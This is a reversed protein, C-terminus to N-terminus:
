LKNFELKSRDLSFPWIELVTLGNLSCKVACPGNHHLKCRNCFPLNGAYAKGENPTAAYARVVEQRRNQQHHHNNNRNINNSQHDEWKKKNGDSGRAAKVRVVQDMLNHAMRIAEHTTTPKSSTVNRQIDISTRDTYGVIDDGKVTLNWLEQEMKQVESRPCYEATMMEKLENWTIQNAANIGLSHVYGNWWSLTHGHLTCVVYKVRGESAYNSIQFVLELKEFWRSLGVMAETGSFTHPNYALFTKYTCGHVEPAINGGDNGGANGGANGGVKGGVNGGVNGRANGGANGGAVSPGVAYAGTSGNSSGQPGPTRQEIASIYEDM